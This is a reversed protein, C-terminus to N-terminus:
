LGAKTVDDLSYALVSIGGSEKIRNLIQLQTDTPKNPKIKTEIGFFRGVKTLGIIDPWGAEGLNIVHTKLGGKLFAKGSQNRKCLYGKLRLYQLIAAILLSEPKPM